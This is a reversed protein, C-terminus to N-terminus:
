GRTDKGTVVTWPAVIRQVLYTFLFLAVSMLATLAVAALVLDTRFSNKQASMYLGLGARAGVYEAFIAGVVAYTVGIRLSTFFRPMAQPVRLRYFIQWRSAGMSTLLATATPSTTLFGEILGLTIPFFTVLIIVLVKPLTGFGFWIIMLPAIAVIPITQSAVLFPTVSLRFWPIFDVATAILWSVILTLSCGILTVQLTASAHRWLDSSHAIGQAFVRSPAPLIQPRVGSIRVYLEWGVLLLVGLLIAPLLRRVTRVARSIDM